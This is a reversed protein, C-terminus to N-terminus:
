QPQQPQQSESPVIITCVIYALIGVFFGTFCTVLAWLLRVWTSDTDFYEAIGGCLGSVKKDYLSRYLRKKM